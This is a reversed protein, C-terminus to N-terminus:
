KRKLRTQPQNYNRPRLTTPKRRRRILAAKPGDRKTATEIDPFPAQLRGHQHRPVVLEEYSPKLADVANASRTYGHSFFCSTASLFFNNTPSVEPWDRGLARTLTHFNYM